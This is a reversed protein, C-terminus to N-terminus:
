GGEVFARIKRCGGGGQEVDRGEEGVRRDDELCREARPVTSGLFM